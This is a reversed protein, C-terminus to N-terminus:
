VLKELITIPIIPLYRIPDRAILVFVQQWLVALGIFGYYLEPHTIAPPADQGVRDLLFYLPLLVLLGYVAAISYAIRAFRM